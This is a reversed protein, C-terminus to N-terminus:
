FVILLTRIIVPASSDNKQKCLYLDQCRGGVFATTWDVTPCLMNNKQLIVIKFVLFIIVIQCHLLVNRRM